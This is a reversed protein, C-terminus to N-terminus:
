QNGGALSFRAPALSTSLREGNLPFTKTTLPSSPSTRSSSMSSSTATWPTNPVIYNRLYFSDM